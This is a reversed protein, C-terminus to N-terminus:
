RRKKYKQYIQKLLGIITKYIGVSQITFLLPSHIRTSLIKLKRVETNLVYPLAIKLFPIGHHSTNFSLTYINNRNKIYLRQEIDWQSANSFFYFIDTNDNIYPVIDYLVDRFKQERFVCPNIKESSKKLLSKLEFQPNFALVYKANLLSGHM